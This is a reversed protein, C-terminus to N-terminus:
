MWLRSSNMADVAKLQENCGCGQGTWQIWLGLNNMADVIKLQKNCGYGQTTWKMVVKLQEDDKSMRSNNSKSNAYQM